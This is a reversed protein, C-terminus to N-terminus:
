SQIASLIAAMFADKFRDELDKKEIDVFSEQPKYEIIFTDEDYSTLQIDNNSCILGMREWVYNITFKLQKLTINTYSHSILINLFERQMQNPLGFREQGLVQRVASCISERNYKQGRDASSTPFDIRSPCSQAREATVETPFGLTILKDQRVQRVQRFFSRIYKLIDLIFSSLKDDGEIGRLGNGFIINPVREVQYLFRIERLDNYTYLYQTFM